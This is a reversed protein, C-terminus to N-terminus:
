LVGIFQLRPMAFSYLAAPRHAGRRSYSLRKLIGMALIRRRFNRRDIARGLVASYLAELQAFSIESPLLAYAINTYMLKSRLRKAAYTVMKAHDYALPPLKAVSYWRGDVYKGPPLRVRSPDAILAMYAASVVHARPDRKPNGFTYLQELYANRLGAADFLERKAAGDLTEGVRVLGGPVAWKGRLPERLEVLWTRLKGDEIAFLVTDVAVM